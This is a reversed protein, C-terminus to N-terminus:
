KWSNTNVTSNNLTKKKSQLTSNFRNNVASYSLLGPKPLTLSQSAFSLADRSDNILWKKCISFAYQTERFM